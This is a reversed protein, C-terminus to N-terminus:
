HLDHIWKYKESFEIAECQIEAGNLMMLLHVCRSQYLLHQVATQVKLRASLHDMHRVEFSCCQKM